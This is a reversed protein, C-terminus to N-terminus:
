TIEAITVRYRRTDNSGYPDATVVDIALPEGPVPPVLDFHKVLRTELDGNLLGTMATYIAYRLEADNM